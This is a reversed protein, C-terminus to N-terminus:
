DTAGWGRLIEKAYAQNMPNSDQQAARDLLPRLPGKLDTHQRTNQWCWDLARQRVMPDPDALAEGIVTVRSGLKDEFILSYNYACWRAPADASTKM